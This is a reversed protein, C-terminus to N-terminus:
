DTIVAGHKVASQSQRSSQLLHLSLDWEIHLEFLVLDTDMLATHLAGLYKQHNQHIKDYIICCFLQKLSTRFCVLYICGHVGIQGLYRVLGVISHRDLGSRRIGIRCTDSIYSCIVETLFIQQQGIAIVCRLGSWIRLCVNRCVFMPSVPSASILFMKDPFVLCIIPGLEPFASYLQTSQAISIRSRNIEAEVLTQLM